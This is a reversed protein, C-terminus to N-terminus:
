VFNGNIICHEIGLNWIFKDIVDIPQKTISRNTGDSYFIRIIFGDKRKAIIILTYSKSPNFPSYIKSNYYDQFFQNYFDKGLINCIIHLQGTKRIKESDINNISQHSHCYNDTPIVPNQCYTERRRGKEIVEHCYQLKFPIIPLDIIIQLLANIKIERIWSATTICNLKSTYNYFQYYQQYFENTPLNYTIKSSTFYNKLSEVNCYLCILLKIEDPLTNM